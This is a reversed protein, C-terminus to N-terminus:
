FYNNQIDVLIGQKVLLLAHPADLEKVHLSTSAWPFHSHSIFQRFKADLEESKGSIVKCVKSRDCICRNVVHGYSKPFLMTAYMVHLYYTQVGLFFQVIPFGCKVHLFFRLFM